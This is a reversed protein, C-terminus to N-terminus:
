TAATNTLKLHSTSSVSKNNIAKNYQNNNDQKKRREEINSPDWAKIRFQESEKQALVISLDKMRPAIPHTLNVRGRAAHEDIFNTLFKKLTLIQDDPDDFEFLISLEKM